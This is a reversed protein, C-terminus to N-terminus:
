PIGLGDPRPVGGCDKLDCTLSGRQWRRRRYRRAEGRVLRVVPSRGQRLSKPYGSLGKILELVPNSRRPQTRLAQLATKGRLVWARRDRDPPPDKARLRMAHARELMRATGSVFARAEPM